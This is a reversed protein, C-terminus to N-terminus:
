PKERLSALIREIRRRARVADATGPRELEVRALTEAARRPDGLCDLCVDAQRHCLSVREDPALADRDALIKSAIELYREGDDRRRAIEALGQAAELDSPEKEWSERLLREAEDLEGKRLQALGAMTTKSARRGGHGWVADVLKETVSRVAVVAVIAVLLSGGAMIVLEAFSFLEVGFLAAYLSSVIIFAILTELLFAV